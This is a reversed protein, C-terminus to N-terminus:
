FLIFVDIEEKSFGSFKQMRQSPGKRVETGKSEVQKGPLLGM